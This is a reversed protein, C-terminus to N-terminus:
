PTDRGPTTDEAASPSDDTPTTQEDQGASLRAALAHVDDELSPDDSRALGGCGLVVAGGMVESVGEDDRM